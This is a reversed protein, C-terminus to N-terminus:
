QRVEFDGELGSTSDPGVWLKYAGTEVIYRMDLGWFGLQQAPTEFRVTRAEGPELV